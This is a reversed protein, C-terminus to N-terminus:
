KPKKEHMSRICAELKDAGEQVMADYEKWGYHDILLALTKLVLLYGQAFAVDAFHREEKGGHDVPTFKGNADTELSFLIEAPSNHVFQNPLYYCGSLLDRVGVDNAIKVLDHRSWRAQTRQKGKKNTTKFAAVKEKWNKDYNEAIQEWGMKELQVLYYNWYADIENPHSHLYTADVLKEFMSRLVQLAAFGHANSSLLLIESFDKLCLRCLMFITLGQRNLPVARNTVTYITDNFRELLDIAERNRENFLEVEHPLDFTVVRTKSAM